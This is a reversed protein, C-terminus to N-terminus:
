DKMMHVNLHDYTMEIGNKDFARKIEEMVDYYVDWYDKTACWPRVIYEISSAGYNRVRVQPAPKELTKPHDELVRLITRKVLEIDADYSATILIDVRRTDNASYNVIKESAIESNPIQVLKNDGTRLQTYFMGTEQVVGLVGSAEVEDGVAFPKTSLLQLGGAVNSLLNQVALSLAVGVVSVVAVLSTVPIGLTGLVMIVLLVLLAIRIAARLFGKLGKDLHLHDFSRDVVKMIMRVAVLGVVLTILTTLLTHLSFDSSSLGLSSAVSSMVEKLTEM